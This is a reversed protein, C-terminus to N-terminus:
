NYWRNGRHSQGVDHHQGRFTDIIPDYHHHRKSEENERRRRKRRIHPLHEWDHYYHSPSYHQHRPSHQAHPYYYPYYANYPPQAGHYMPQQPMDPQILQLPIGSQIPQHPMSPAIQQQPVVSAIPQSLIGPAVQPQAYNPAMPVTSPNFNGYVSPAAIPELINRGQPAPPLSISSKPIFNTSMPVPPPAYNTPYQPQGPQGMPYNYAMQQNPDYQLQQMSPNWPAPPQGAWYDYAYPIQGDNKIFVQQNSQQTPLNHHQQDTSSFLPQEQKQKSKQSM